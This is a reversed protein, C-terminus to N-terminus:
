QSSRASEHHPTAPVYGIAGQTRDVRRRMEEISGVRVPLLGTGTYSTRNWSRRLVYPYTALHEQCFQIHLPNSDDLVFVRIPQGDPWTRVRLSFVARLFSRKLYQQDVGSHAYIEVGSADPQAYAAQGLSLSLLVAVVLGRLSPLYCTTLTNQIKSGYM